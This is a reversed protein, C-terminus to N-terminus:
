TSFKEYFWFWKENQFSDIEDFSTIKKANKTIIGKKKEAEEKYLWQFCLMQLIVVRLNNKVGDNKKEVDEDIIMLSIDDLINVVHICNNGYKFDIETLVNM